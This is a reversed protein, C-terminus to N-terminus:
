YPNLLDNPVRRVRRKPVGGDPMGDSTAAPAPSSEIRPAPQSASVTRTAGVEASRPPPTLARSETPARTPAAEAGSVETGESAESAASWAGLAALLTVAAAGLALTRGTGRKARRVSRVTSSPESHDNWAVPADSKGLWRSELLAGSVDDQVGRSRLWKALERGFVQMSPWREGPSKALGRRLIEWLELEAVGYAVLPEPEDERTRRFHEEYDGFAFPCSGTVCEYLVASFSWIDTAAGVDASCSAQEPSIYGPSGVLM